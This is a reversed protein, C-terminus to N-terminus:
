VTICGWNPDQFFYNELINMQDYNLIKKGRKSKCGKETSDQTTTNLISPSLISSVQTTTRLSQGFLEEINGESKVKFFDEFDKSSKLYKAGSPVTSRTHRKM